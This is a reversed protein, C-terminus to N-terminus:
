QRGVRSEFDIEFPFLSQSILNLSSIWFSAIAERLLFGVWDNWSAVGKADIICIDVRQLVFTTLATGWWPGSMRCLPAYAWSISGYFEVRVRTHM